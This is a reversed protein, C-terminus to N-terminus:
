TSVPGSSGSTGVAAIGRVELRDDFGIQLTDGIALGQLALTNSYKVNTAGLASGAAM